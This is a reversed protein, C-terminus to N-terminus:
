LSVARVPRPCVLHVNSGEHWRRCLRRRGYWRTHAWQEGGNQRFPVLLRWAAGARREHVRSYVSPLSSQAYLLMKRSESWTTGQLV